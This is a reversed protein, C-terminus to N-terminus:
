LVDWDHATCLVPVREFERADAKALQHAAEILQDFRAVVLHSALEAALRVGLSSSGYPLKEFAQQVAEMGTLTFEDSSADWGSLWDTEWALDWLRGGKEYAFGNFYWREPNIDFGNMGFYMARVERETKAVRYFNVMFQSVESRQHLFSLGIVEHYPTHRLFRLADELSAICELLKRHPVTLGFLSHIPGSM